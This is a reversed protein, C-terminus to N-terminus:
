LLNMYDINLNRSNRTWNLKTMSESEKTRRWPPTLPHSQTIKSRPHPQVFQDLGLHLSCPGTPRPPIPLASSNRTPLRGRCQSTGLLARQSPAEKGGATCRCPDFFQGEKFTPLPLIISERPRLTQGKPPLTPFLLGCFVKKRSPQHVM